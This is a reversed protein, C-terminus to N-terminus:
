LAKEKRQFKNTQKNNQKSRQGWTFCYVGSHLQPPFPLPVWVSKPESLDQLLLLTSLVFFGNVEPGEFPQTKGKPLGPMDKQRSSADKAVLLSVTSPNWFSLAAAMDQSM